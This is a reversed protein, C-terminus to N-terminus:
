RRFSRLTFFLLGVNAAFTPYLAIRYFHHNFLKPGRPLTLSHQPGESREPHGVFFLHLPLHLLLHLLLYLLLHLPLTLLGM